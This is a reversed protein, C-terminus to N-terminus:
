ARSVRGGARHGAEAGPEERLLDIAHGLAPIIVDLNEVAARPNGPLNVILTRGRIGAIARSLMGHPTKQMSAIRMAEALGPALREVVAQTAEPARDRPAFGTGGTTLILDVEASDAWARLVAEVEAQEDSVVGGRAVRWGQAEVRARVLPGSEDEREGRSSRDSITLVGVNM